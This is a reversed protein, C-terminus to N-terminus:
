EIPNWEREVILIDGDVLESQQFSLKPNVKEIM